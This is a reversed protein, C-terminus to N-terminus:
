SVGAARWRGIDIAPVTGLKQLKELLGLLFGMLPNADDISVGDETREFTGAELVCGIDMSQESSLSGLAEIFPSGFAPSWGARRSLVGGIIRFPSKPETITGGAHVIQGNTRELARVSAVKTGAYEVYEKDLDPKVEFVAYVSEAPIHLHGGINFLLPSYQRDFVVVDLQDSRQGNIDVVFASAVRYRHPLFAELTDLWKLESDTGKTGPHSTLDAAGLTTLLENQLQGFGARIDFTAM